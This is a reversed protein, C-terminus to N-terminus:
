GVGRKEKGSLREYRECIVDCYGPDLEILRATRGSRECAVLTSGSGAFPDLVAPGVGQFRDVRNSLGERGRCHAFSSRLLHLPL